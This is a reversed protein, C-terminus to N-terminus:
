VDLVFQLVAKEEKKDYKVFMENFTIAKVDNTFKYKSASDILIKAALSYGNKEDGMIELDEIESLLFDDADLLFLFEELFRYLLDELDKGEIALVRGRVPKVKVGEAIAERLAYAASIFAAELNKEEVRVKLDATHELFKYPM